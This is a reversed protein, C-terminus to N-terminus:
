KKPKYFTHPCYSNWIKCELVICCFSFIRCLEFINWFPLAQIVRIYPSQHQHISRSKGLLIDDNCKCNIESLWAKFYYVLARARATKKGCCPITGNQLTRFFIKDQKKLQELFKIHLRSNCIRVCAHKINLKTEM